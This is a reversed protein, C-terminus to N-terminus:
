QGFGTSELYSDVDRAISPGGDSVLGIARPKVGAPAGVAAALTVRILEAKTMGEAAARVALARDLEDDIYLSTKKM